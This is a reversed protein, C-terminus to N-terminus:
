LLRHHCGGSGAGGFWRRGPPVGSRPLAYVPCMYFPQSCRSGGPERLCGGHGYQVRRWRRNLSANRFITFVQVPGKTTGIEFTTARQNKLVHKEMGTGCWDWATAEWKGGRKKKFFLQPRFKSYGFYDIDIGTRNEVQLVVTAPKDNPVTKQITIVPVARLEKDDDKHSSSRFLRDPRIGARATAPIQSFCRKVQALAGDTLTDLVERVAATYAAEDM